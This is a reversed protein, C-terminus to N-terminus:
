RKTASKRNGANHSRSRRAAAVESGNQEGRSSPSPSLSWREWRMRSGARSGESELDFFTFSFSAKGFNEDESDTDCDENDGWIGEINRHNGYKTM